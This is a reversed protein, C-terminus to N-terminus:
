VLAMAWLLGCALAAPMSFYKESKGVEAQGSTLSAVITTSISAYLPSSPALVTLVAFLTSASSGAFM